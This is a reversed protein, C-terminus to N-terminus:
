APPAEREADEARKVRDEMWIVLELCNDEQWASTEFEANLPCEGTWPRPDRIEAESHHCVPCRREAGDPAQTDEVVEGVSAFLAPTIVDAIAVVLQKAEAETLTYAVKESLVTGPWHHVWLTIGGAAEELAAPTVSIEVCSLGITSLQIVTM